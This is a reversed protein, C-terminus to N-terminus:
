KHSTHHYLSNILKRMKKTKTQEQQKEYYCWMSKKLRHDTVLHKAFCLSGPSSVNSTLLFPYSQYRYVRNLNVKFAM